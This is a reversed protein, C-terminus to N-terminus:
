IRLPQEEGNVKAEINRFLATPAVARWNFHNFFPGLNVFQQLRTERMEVEVHDLLNLFCIWGNEEIVDEFWEEYYCDDSGHFNLVNECILIYKNIGQKAWEDGADRRLYM